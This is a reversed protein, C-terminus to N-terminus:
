NSLLFSRSCFWMKKSKRSQPLSLWWLSLEARAV